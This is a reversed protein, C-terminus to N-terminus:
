NRKDKKFHGRRWEWIMEEMGRCQGMEEMKRPQYRSKEEMEVRGMRQWIGERRLTQCKVSVMLLYFVFGKLSCSCKHEHVFWKSACIQICDCQIPSIVRVIIYSNYLANLLVRMIQMVIFTVSPLSSTKKMSTKRNPKLSYKFAHFGSISACQNPKNTETKICDIHRDFIQAWMWTVKVQGSWLHQLIRKLDDHFWRIYM